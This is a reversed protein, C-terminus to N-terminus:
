RPSRRHIEYGFFGNDFNKQVSSYFILEEVPCGWPYVSEFFSEIKDPDSGTDVALFKVRNEILKQALDYASSRDDDHLKRFNHVKGVANDSIRLSHTWFKGVDCIVIRDVKWNIYTRAPHEPKEVLRKKGKSIEPVWELLKYYKLGETRAETCTQLVAPVASTCMYGFHESWRSHGEQNESPQHKGIFINRPNNFIELEWIKSRLEPLLKPFLTFTTLSTSNRLQRTVSKESEAM